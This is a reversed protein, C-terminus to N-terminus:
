AFSYYIAVKNFLAVFVSLRVYGYLFVCVCVPVCVYECFPAWRRQVDNFSFRVYHGDNITSFNKFTNKLYFLNEKSVNAASLNEMWNPSFEILFDRDTEVFYTYNKKKKKKMVFVSFIKM